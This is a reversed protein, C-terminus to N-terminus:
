ASIDTRHTTLTSTTATFTPTASTLTTTKATLTSTAATLTPTNGTASMAEYVINESNLVYTGTLSGDTPLKAFFLDQSNTSGITYFSGFSDITLGALNNVNQFTRQWQLTGSSDYKAIFAQILPVRLQGTMYVNGSSDVAVSRASDSGTLGLTRQWSLNGSSDWKTLLTDFNGAGSSNTRGAAYINGSSDVAISNFAESSAGSLTRQWQITGSSNYKALLCDTGTSGAVYINNSSDIATAGFGQNGSDGLGRQWQITGSSNYKALFADFVSGDFFEVTASIYLDGSSDLAGANSNGYFDFGSGGLTRQWNVTGDTNFKAIVLDEGNNSTSGLSYVGTTDNVVGVLGINNTGSNGFFKQYTINGDSDYKAFLGSGNASGASQTFGAIYFNQTEDLRIGFGSDNEAGALSQIYYSVPSAGGASSLIGLPILM